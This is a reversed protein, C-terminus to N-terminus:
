NDTQPKTYKYHAIPHTHTKGQPPPHLPNTQGRYVKQAVGGKGLVFSPM